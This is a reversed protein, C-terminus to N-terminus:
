FTRLLGWLNQFNKLGREGPPSLQKSIPNASITESFSYRLCFGRGLRVDIGVPVRLAAVNASFVRPPLAPAGSIFEIQRESSRLHVLGVGASLYPRLRSRRDRFFVLVDGTFSDQSSDRTESYYSAPATSSSVLTLDNANWIFNGQVSIYNGLYRGLFVNLAPGNQPRYLSVQSGASSVVSNGDASLTSLAGIVGAYYEQAHLIPALYCVAVVGAFFERM